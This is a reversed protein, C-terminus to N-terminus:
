GRAKGLDLDEARAFFAGAVEVRARARDGEQPAHGEEGDGLEGARLEVGPEQADRGDM